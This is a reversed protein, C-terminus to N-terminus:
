NAGKLEELVSKPIRDLLGIAVDIASQFEDVSFVNDRYAIVFLGGFELTFRPAALLFEMSEQSLVDFAWRRDPSAVCFERSFQASEFNIDDHGFFAGVKDLWTEGRISLPKLPVNTTIIVASFEHHYTQRNGKSDTSHTEYHYDFACLPWRRCVGDMINKAYRGDGKTLCSFFPYRHELSPDNAGQFSLGHATAWDRLEMRRKATLYQNFAILGIVIAAVAIFIFVQLDTMERM